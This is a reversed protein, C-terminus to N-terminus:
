IHLNENEVEKIIALYSALQREIRKKFRKMSEKDPSCLTVNEGMLVLKVAMRETMGGCLLEKMEGRTKARM